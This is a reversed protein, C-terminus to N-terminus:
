KFLTNQMVSPFLKWKNLDKIGILKEKYLNCGMGTGCALSLILTSRITIANADKGFLSDRQYCTLYKM